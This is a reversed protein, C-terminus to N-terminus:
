DDSTKFDPDSLMKEFYQRQSLMEPTETNIDIIRLSAEIRITKKWQDLAKQSLEIKEPAYGLTTKKYVISLNKTLEHIDEDVQAVAMVGHKSQTSATMQMDIRVPVMETRHVYVKGEYGTVHFHGTRSIEPSPHKFTIVWLTDGSEQQDLVELEYEHLYALNLINAPHAAADAMLLDDMLTTGDALSQVEFNRQVNLFRYNRKSDTSLLDNYGKPDAVLVMAKRTKPPASGNNVKSEYFAKYNCHQHIFKTPINQVADRLIRYAVRSKTQIEVDDIGYTQTQMAVLEPRKLYSQLPISLQEYGIASFYLKGELLEAPVTFSFIGNKDSATGVLSGEIGVNIFPLGEGNSADIVRGSVTKGEQGHAFNILVLLLLTLIIHNKM